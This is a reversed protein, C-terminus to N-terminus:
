KWAQKLSQNRWIKKCMVSAVILVVMVLSILVFDFDEKLIDFTGSPTVRTYFLDLGYVFVLSTSELGSSATKIGKINHVTQNYNILDETAIMLEPMYPIIM